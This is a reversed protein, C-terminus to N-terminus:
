IPGYNASRSFERKRGSSQVKNATEALGEYAFAMADVFDDHGKGNEQPFSLIEAEFTSPLGVDHIVMGMEYRTLLPIFRTLKDKNSGVKSTPRVPLTTNRILEQVYVSQAQVAEIKIVSPKFIESLQIIKNTIEVYLGKIHLAYVVFIRGTADEGLIVIATYDARTNLSSALDVGMSLRIGTPADGYRIMDRKVLNGGFTVFEALVEQDFFPGPFEDRYADIESKPIYPNHYSTMKFSHWGKKRHENKPDPNGWDHFTKFDNLGKPSSYFFGRGRYDMLTSRICAAWQDYLNKVMAAEDVIVLHYKRGRAPDGRDLTWMDISGKTKLTLEKHHENRSGIIPKPLTYKITTWVPSLLKYTPCFYGVKQGKLAASIAQVVALDTKGFRRGIACVIFRAPCNLVQLQNKHPAQLTIIRDEDTM